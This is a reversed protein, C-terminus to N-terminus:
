ERARYLEPLQYVELIGEDLLALLKGDPSLAARNRHEIFPPIWPSGGRLKRTYIAKRQGLDYVVIRDDTVFEMDLAASGRLETLIYAFRQGESSTVIRSFSSKKPLSDRLLVTDDLMVVALERGHALALTSDNVFFPGENRWPDMRLEVGAPHFPEWHQDSKNICLASDPKCIGVLVTDTFHVNLAEEASWKLRPQFSEADILNTDGKVRLTFFRKSPSVKIERCPSPPSLVQERVVGFDHSLLQIKDETCALFDM